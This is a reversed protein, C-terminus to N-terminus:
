LIILQKIVSEVGNEIDKIFGYARGVNYFLVVGKYIISM